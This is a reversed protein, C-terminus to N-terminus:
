CWSLGRPLDHCYAIEQANSRYLTTKTWASAATYASSRSPPQIVVFVSTVAYHKQDSVTEFSSKWFHFNNLILSRPLTIPFITRKGKVLM